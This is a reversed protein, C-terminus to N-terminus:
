KEPDNSEPGGDQRNDADAEQEGDYLQKGALLLFGM